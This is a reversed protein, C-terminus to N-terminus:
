FAVGTLLEIRFSDHVPPLGASFTNSAEQTFCCTAVSACVTVQHTDLLDDVLRSAGHTCDDPLSDGFVALNRFAETRSLLAICTTLLQLGAKYTLM